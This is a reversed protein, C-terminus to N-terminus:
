SQAAQLQQLKKFVREGHGKARARRWIHAIRMAPDVIFTRRDIGIYKRGYLNKEVIAGFTQCVSEDPDSLLQVTLNYKKIFAQHSDISDASIGIIQASCSAYEDQGLQSFDVAEITCGPTDDKPYFYIISWQGLLQKSDIQRTGGTSDVAEGSFAPTLDGIELTM